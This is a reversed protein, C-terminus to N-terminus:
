DYFRTINIRVNTGANSSVYITPPDDTDISIYIFCLGANIVQLGGQYVDSPSVFVNDTIEGPSIAIMSAGNLDVLQTTATPVDYQVDDTNADWVPTCSLRQFRDGYFTIVNIVQSAARGMLWITPDTSGLPVYVHGVADTGNVFLGTGESAAPQTSSPSIWFGGGAAASFIYGNADPDITFSLPTTTNVITVTSFTTSSDWVPLDESVPVTASLGTGLRPKMIVDRVILMDGFTSSAIEYQLRYKSGGTTTIATGGAGDDTWDYTHRFNYGDADRTWYGDTQLTNFIVSSITLSIAALETSSDAVGNTIDFVRLTVSSADGQVLNTGDPTVYRSVTTPREDEWIEITPVIKTSM